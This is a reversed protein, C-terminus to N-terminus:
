HVDLGSHPEGARFGKDISPDRTAKPADGHEDLSLRQRDQDDPDADDLEQPVQLELESM